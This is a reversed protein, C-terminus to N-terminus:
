GLREIVKEFNVLEFKPIVYVMSSQRIEARFGVNDAYVYMNSFDYKVDAVLEVTSIPDSALPNYKFIQLYIANPTFIIIPYPLSRREAMIYTYSIKIIKGLESAPIKEIMINENFNKVVDADADYVGEFSKFRDTIESVAYLLFGSFINDREKTFIIKKNGRYITIEDLIEKEERMYPDTYTLRINLRYGSFSVKNLTVTTRSTNNLLSFFEDSKRKIIEQVRNIDEIRMETEIIKM